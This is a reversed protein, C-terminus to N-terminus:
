QEVGIYICDPCAIQLDPYLDFPWPPVQIVAGASGSTNYLPHRKLSDAKALAASWSLYLQRVLANRSTSMGRLAVGLHRSGDDVHGSDIEAVASLGRSASEVLLRDDRMVRAFYAMSYAIQKLTYVRRPRPLLYTSGALSEATRAALLYDPPRSAIARGVDDRAIITVVRIAERSRMYTWGVRTGIALLAFAVYTAIVKLWVRHEHRPFGYSRLGIGVFLMHMTMLVASMVVSVVALGVFGGGALLMQRAMLARTAVGGISRVLSGGFVLQLVVFPVFLVSAYCLVDFAEKLAVASRRHTFVALLSGFLAFGLGLHLAVILLSTLLTGAGAPEAAVAGSVFCVLYAALTNVGLFTGPKSYEGHGAPRVRGLAAYTKRPSTALAAVTAPYRVLSWYISSVSDGLQNADPIKM